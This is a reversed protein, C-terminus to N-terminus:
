PALWSGMPLNRLVAFVVLSSPSSPSGCGARVGSANATRRRAAPPVPGPAAGDLPGLAARDAPDAGRLGPQQQRRRAPRRQDPRQGRAPRRLRPLLPRDDRLVPLHGLEGVRAPRPLAARDHPRRRARRHDAPGPAAPAPGSACCSPATAVDAHDRARHAPRGHRDTAPATAWRRCPWCPSSRSRRSPSASGSCRGAARGDPRHRRRRLRRTGIVVATWAAPTNGHNASM